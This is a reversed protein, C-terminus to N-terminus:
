WSFKHMLKLEQRSFPALQMRRVSRVICDSRGPTILASRVDVDRVRGSPGDLYIDVDVGSAPDEVCRKVDPAVKRVEARLEEVTPLERLPAGVTSPVAQVSHVPFAPEPASPLVVPAAHAVPGSGPGGVGKNGREWGLTTFVGAMFSLAAVLVLTATSSRGVHAAFAGSPRKRM